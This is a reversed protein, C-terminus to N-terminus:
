SIGHSRLRAEGSSYAIIYYKDFYRDECFMKGVVMLFERQCLMPKFSKFELCKITVSIPTRARDSSNKM